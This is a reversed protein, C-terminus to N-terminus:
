KARRTVNRDQASVVRLGQRRATRLQERRMQLTGSYNLTAPDGDPVDCHTRCESELKMGCGRPDDVPRGCDGIPGPTAGDAPGPAPMRYLAARLQQALQVRGAYTSTNM